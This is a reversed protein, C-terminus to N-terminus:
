KLPKQLGSNSRKMFSEAIKWNIHLSCCELMGFLWIFVSAVNKYRFLVQNELMHSVKSIATSSVNIVDYILSYCGFKTCPYNRPLYLGTRLKMTRAWCSCQKGCPTSDVGGLWLFGFFARSFYSNFFTEGDLWASDGGLKGHAHLLANGRGHTHFGSYSLAINGIQWM